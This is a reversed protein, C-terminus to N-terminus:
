AGDLAARVDRVRVLAEDELDPGDPYRLVELVARVARRTKMSLALVEDMTHEDKLHQRLNQEDLERARASTMEVLQELFTGKAQMLGLHVQTGVLLLPDTPDAAKIIVPCLPCEFYYGPGEFGPRDRYNERVQGSM